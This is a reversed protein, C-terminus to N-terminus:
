PLSPFILLEHLKYMWDSYRECQFAACSHIQCDVVVRIVLVVLVVLFLIGTGVVPSKLDMIYCLKLSSLRLAELEMKKQDGENERKHKGISDDSQVEMHSENETTFKTEKAASFRGSGGRV